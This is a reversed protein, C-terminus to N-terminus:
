KKDIKQLPLEYEQPMFTVGKLNDRYVAVLSQYTLPIYVAQEHLITLIEKYLEEVRKENTEVLVQHIKSDLEKKIALNKQAKYDPNGNDAPTAMANIYAHSGM